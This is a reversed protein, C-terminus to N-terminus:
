SILAKGLQRNDTKWGYVMNISSPVLRLNFVVSDILYYLEIDVQYMTFLHNYWLLELQWRSQIDATDGSKFHLCVSYSQHLTQSHWQSLHLISYITYLISRCSDYADTSVCLIVYDVVNRHTSFVLVGDIM